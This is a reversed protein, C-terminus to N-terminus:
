KNKHLLGRLTYMAENYRGGADTVMRPSIFSAEELGPTWCTIPNGSALTPQDELFPTSTVM